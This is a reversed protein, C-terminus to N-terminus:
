RYTERDRPQHDHHDNAEILGGFSSMELAGFPEKICFREPNESEEGDWAQPFGSPGGNVRRYVLM